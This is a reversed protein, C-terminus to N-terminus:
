VGVHSEVQARFVCRPPRTDEMAVIRSLEGVGGFFFPLELARSRLQKNAVKLLLVISNDQQIIDPLCALLGQHFAARTHTHTHTHTHTRQPNKKKVIISVCWLSYTEKQM